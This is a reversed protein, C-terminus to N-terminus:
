DGSGRGAPQQNLKCDHKCLKYNCKASPRLMGAGADAGPAEFSPGSGLLDPAGTLQFCPQLCKQPCMKGPPQVLAAEARSRPIHLLLLCSTVPCSRDLQAVQTPTASQRPECCPQRGSAHSERHLVMGGAQTSASAHDRSVSRNRGRAADEWSPPATGARCTALLALSSGTLHAAGPGGGRSM